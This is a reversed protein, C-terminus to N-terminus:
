RPAAPSGGATRVRAGFQPGAPQKPVTDPLLPQVLGALSLPPRQVKLTVLGPAIVQASPCMSGATTENDTSGTVNLPNIM